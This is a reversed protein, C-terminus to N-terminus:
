RVRSRASKRKKKKRKKKKKFAIDDVIKALGSIEGRHHTGASLGALSLSLSFSFSRRQGLFFLEAKVESEKSTLQSFPFSIALINTYM